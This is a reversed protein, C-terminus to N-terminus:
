PSVALRGARATAVVERAGVVPLHVILAVRVTVTGSRGGPDLAPVCGLVTAGNAAATRAASPCVAPTVGIQGAAALATLDAASEARHRALVAETRLTGAVAVTVLLACCSVVWVSASGREDFAM